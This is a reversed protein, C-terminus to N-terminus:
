MLTKCFYIIVWGHWLMLVNPSLCSPQWKLLRCIGICKWSYFSRFQLYSKISSYEEPDLQCYTMMPESLPNDGFLRCAVIQVLSPINQEHRYADSSWLPNDMISDFRREGTYLMSSLNCALSIISSAILWGHGSGLSCTKTYKAAVPIDPARPNSLYNLCCHSYITLQFSVLCQM